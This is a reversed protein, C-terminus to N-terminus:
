YVVRVLFGRAQLLQLLGDPGPLHLAGVAVFTGGKRLYPQVRELMLWNRGDVLRDLLYEALAPDPKELDQRGLELLRPLDRALYAQKLEKFM